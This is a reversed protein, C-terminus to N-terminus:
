APAIKDKPYVATKAIMDHLAQRSAGLVFFCGVFIALGLLNGVTGLLAVGTLAALVTCLFNINKMAFRALLQSLPAQRGDASAVRIGLLLKGLTYGTFGEVLFYVTGLVAAAAIVGMMAGMMGATLAAAAPDVGTMDPSALSGLKGGLLGLITGGLLYAAVWVIVGDLLFAGLRKGFGVRQEM